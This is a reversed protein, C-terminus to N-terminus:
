RPFQSRYLWIRKLLQICRPKLYTKWVDAVAADCAL